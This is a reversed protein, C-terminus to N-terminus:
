YSKRVLSIPVKVIGLYAVKDNFEIVSGTFLLEVEDEASSRNVEATVGLPIVIEHDGVSSINNDALQDSIILNQYVDVYIPKKCNFNASLEVLEGTFFKIPTRYKEISVDVAGLAKLSADLSALTTETGSTFDIDVVVRYSGRLPTTGNAEDGSLKGLKQMIIDKNDEILRIWEILVVINRVIGFFAQVM